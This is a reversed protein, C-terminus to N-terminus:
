YWTNCFPWYFGGVDWTVASENALMKGGKKDHSM